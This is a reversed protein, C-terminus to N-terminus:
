RKRGGEEGVPELHRTTQEVISGVAEIPAPPRSPEPLGTPLRGTDVGRATEPLGLSRKRELERYRLYQGVGHGISGFAPILLWFWWIRGGPAFSLVAFAAVFLGIGSFLSSVAKEIGPQRNVKGGEAPGSISLQGTLAQPVLSVNAGCSRCFRSGDITAACNPCFM